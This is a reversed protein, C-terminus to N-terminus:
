RPASVVGGKGKKEWLLSSTTAPNRREKTTAADDGSRSLDTAVPEAFPVPNPSFIFIFSLGLNAECSLVLM